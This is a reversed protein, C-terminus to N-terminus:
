GEPALTAWFEQGTSPNRYGFLLMRQRADVTVVRAARRPIRPEMTPDFGTPELVQRWIHRADCRRVRHATMMSDMNAVPSSRQALQARDHLRQAGLGQGRQGIGPDLLVECLQVTRHFLELGFPQTPQGLDVASAEEFAIPV